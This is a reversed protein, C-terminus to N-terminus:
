TLTIVDDVDFLIKAWVEADRNNIPEIISVEVVKGLKSALSNVIGIRRYINPVKYIRVKFPIKQLFTPQNMNSWRDLAVIWGGYTYPLKDLVRVLHHKSAFYFNVSGDDNIQGEVKGVLQWIRPLAIKIGAPNQ